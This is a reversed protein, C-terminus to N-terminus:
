GIYIYITPQVILKYQHNIQDTETKKSDNNFLNTSKMPSNQLHQENRTVRVWIQLIVLVGAM